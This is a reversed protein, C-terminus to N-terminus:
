TLLSLSDSLINVYMLIKNLGLYLMSIKIAVCVNKSYLFFLLWFQNCNPALTFRAIVLRASSFLLATSSLTECFGLTSLHSSM